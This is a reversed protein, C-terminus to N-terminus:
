ATRRAQQGPHSTGSHSRGADAITPKAHPSSKAPEGLTLQSLTLQSSVLQNRRAPLEALQNDIPDWALRLSYPRGGRVQKLDVDWVSNWTTDAPSSDDPAPAVHWLSEFGSAARPWGLLFGTTMSAEAALQTRRALRMWYDASQRTGDYEAVVAALGDTRLIDELVALRRAPNPTDVILLRSPDLGLAALGAAYLMGGAADHSAPCWVIPGASVPGASVPGVSVPGTSVAGGSVPGASVPRHGAAVTDTQPPHDPKLNDPALDHAGSDHSVPGHSVPGHSALLQRLLCIAFGTLAGHAGAWNACLMHVRGLALGGALASDLGALGLALRPRAMRGDLVAVQRRLHTFNQHRKQRQAPYQTQPQYQHQTTKQAFYRNRKFLNSKSGAQKEPVPGRQCRPIHPASVLHNTTAM